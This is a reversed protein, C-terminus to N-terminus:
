LMYEFLGNFKAARFKREKDYLVRRICVLVRTDGSVGSVALVDLNSPSTLSKSVM